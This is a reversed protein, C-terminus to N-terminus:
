QMIGCLNKLERIDADTPTGAEGNNLHYMIAKPDEIHELGLAHGLEHALVRVLKERTSFEYIDIKEGTQDSSYIGGTFTEGREAGISNYVEVNLNLDKALRNLRDVMANIERTLSNLRSETVRIESAAEDLAGREAELKEFEGRSNRSGRNWKDVNEEYANRAAEFEAVRADYLSKVQSHESKLALYQREMARYAAEDEKVEEELGSLAETAEQRYDYILNVSLDGNEPSYAFLEKTSSSGEGQLPREWIAEAVALASLFDSQSIGFRRDFSGLSYAIPEACPPAPKLFPSRWALFLGALVIISILARAM